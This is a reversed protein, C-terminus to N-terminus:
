VALQQHTLLWTWAAACSWTRSQTLWCLLVNPHTVLHCFLLTCPECACCNTPTPRPLCLCTHRASRGPTPSYLLLHSAPFVPCTQPCTCHMQQTCQIRQRCPQPALTHHPLSLDVTASPETLVPDLSLQCPSHHM